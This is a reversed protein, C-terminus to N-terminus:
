TEIQKKVCDFFANTVRKAVGGMMRSALSAITGVVTVEAVWGLDTSDGSEERFAMEAVVDIASGPATAHAKVKAKQMPDLELWEVDATFNLKVTGFGISGVAKFKQDPTVVEMSQLGPACQSIQHADTLFKWVQELPAQIAASGELRM